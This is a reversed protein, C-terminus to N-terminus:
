EEELRLRPVTVDLHRGQAAAAAQLSALSHADIKDCEIVCRRLHRLRLLWLLCHQDIDLEVLVLSRLEQFRGAALALVVTNDLSASTRPNVVIKLSRLGHLGHTASVFDLLDAVDFEDDHASPAKLFQVSSCLRPNAIHSTM